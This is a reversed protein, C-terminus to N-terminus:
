KGQFSGLPPRTGKTGATAPNPATITSPAAATGTLLALFKPYTTAIREELPLGKIRKPNKVLDEEATIEKQAAAAALAMAQKEHGARIAAEKTDARIGATERSRQNIEMLKTKLDASRALRNELATAERSKINEATTYERSRANEWATQEGALTRTDTDAMAAADRQSMGQAKYAEVKAAHIANFRGINNEDLAKAMADNLANIKTQAEIDQTAYGERKAQVASAVGSGWQGPLVNSGKAGIAAITDWFQSPRGEKRAEQLAALKAIGEKQAAINELRTNGVTTEYDSGAAAAREASKDTLGGMISERTAAGFAKAEASMEPRPPIMRGAVDKAVDPAMGRAMLDKAIRDAETGAEEPTGEESTGGGEAFAVIGGGRYAKPLNSPAGALGQSPPPSPAQTAQGQQPQQPQAQMLGPLGLKQAIDTRASQMAQQEMGQAVTPMAQTGSALALAQAAAKKDADVKQLALLDLLQPTVGQQQGQQIPLQGRYAMAERTNYM